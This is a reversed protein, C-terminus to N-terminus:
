PVYKAVSYPTNKSFNKIRYTLNLDDVVLFGNGHLGM